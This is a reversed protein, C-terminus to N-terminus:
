EMEMYQSIGMELLKLVPRCDPEKISGYKNKAVAACGGGCALQLNCKKCEPITVVNRDEWQEVRDEYLKVEPYFTGLEEGSKGVTATCAYISGTYDFAWETKTGPCSDFLPAPMEGNDKLFRSISFAPRHFDLIEPYEQLMVYIKEYLEIRSFLVSSDRQCYYLEYNRGLQTKFYQNNTWGKEIAFRALGPLDNINERDIVMRLNVPIELELASDIGRIIQNFTDGGGSLYRRKNHIDALGDLTVQIERIKHKQLIPIYERLYYGNTVIAVDLERSTALDLIKVIHKKHQNGPLLPEGGFITIYKKRNSFSMDIYSFFATIIQDTLQINFPTYGDQYCYSCSFNCSYWPVFFIQIESQEQKDIFDLYAARYQKEEETHDVLYGKKVYQDKCRFEGSEIDRAYEKTLIDAQGSLPNLIFYNESHKIKSFIIHKSLKM